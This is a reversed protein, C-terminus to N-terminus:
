LHIKHPRIWSMKMDMKEEEMDQVRCTDLKMLYLDTDQFKYGIIPLKEEFLNSALSKRYTM